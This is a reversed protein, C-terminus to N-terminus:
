SSCWGVPAHHGSRTTTDPARRGLAQRCSKGAHHLLRRQPQSYSGAAGAAKGVHWSQRPPCHPFAAVRAVCASSAVRPGRAYRGHRVPGAMRRLRNSGASRLRLLRGGLLNRSGDACDVDNPSPRPCIRSHAGFRQARERWAWHRGSSAVRLARETNSLNRGDPHGCRGRCLLEAVRRPPRLLRWASKRAPRLRCHRDPGGHICRVSGQATWSRNSISSCASEKGHVTWIVAHKGATM